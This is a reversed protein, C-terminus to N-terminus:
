VSCFWIIASSARRLSSSAFTVEIPWTVTVVVLASLGSNDIESGVAGLSVVVVVITAGLARVLSPPFIAGTAGAGLGFPYRISYVRAGLTPMVAARRQAIEIPDQERRV